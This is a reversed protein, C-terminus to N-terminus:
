SFVATAPSIRSIISLLKGSRTRELRDVYCIHFEAQGMKKEFQLVINKEDERTFGTSKVVRIEVIGPQEQVCQMAEINRCRKAIVSINTIRRGDKTILAHATRGHVSEVIPMANDPCSVPEKPLVVLDGIRYRILPAAFNDFATCVMECISQGMETRSLPLFEIVSYDMDYHLHGCGYQTVSGAKENQGYQDYVRTRFGREIWERYEPLLQESTCFVARPPNPFSIDNQLLYRGLLAIPSPYGCLYVHRRRRIEELYMPITEPTQHFVSYCTQNAAFNHRWFPPELSDASLLQLGTFSGYSDGYRVYPRRRAWHFGYERQEAETTWYNTMPFGTSGSTTASRLDRRPVRISLLQKGAQRVDQKELLPLRPLDAVSQIDAPTLKAQRMRNRYFPVTAYAYTIIRRIQEDQFAQLEEYSWHASRSFFSRYERFFRGYRTLRKSLGFASTYLHQLFVPSQEYILRTIRNEM